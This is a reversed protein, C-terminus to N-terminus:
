SCFVGKWYNFQIDLLEKETTMFETFRGAWYPDYYIVEWFYQCWIDM